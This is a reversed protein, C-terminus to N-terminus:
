KGFVVRVDVAAFAPKQTTFIAVRGRTLQYNFTVFPVVGPDPSFNGPLAYWTNKNSNAPAIFAQFFGETVIGDTLEPIDLIVEKFTTDIVNTVISRNTFTFSKINAVGPDGKPGQPGVETKTCATSLMLSALIVFTLYQNRM